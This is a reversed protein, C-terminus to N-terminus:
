VGSHASDTRLLRICGVVKDNLTAALHISAPIDYQDYECGLAEYLNWGMQSIFVEKRLRLCDSYLDVRSTPDRLDVLQTTFMM